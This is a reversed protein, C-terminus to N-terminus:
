LYNAAVVAGVVAGVVAKIARKTRESNARQDEEARLRALEIERDLRAREARERAALVDDEERALHPHALRWRAHERQAELRVAEAEAEVRRSEVAALEDRRRSAARAEEEVLRRRHESERDMLEKAHKVREEAEWKKRTLLEDDVLAVHLPEAPTANAASSVHVEVAVPVTVGQAPADPPAPPASPPKDRTTMPRTPLTHELVARSRRVRADVSEFKEFAGGSREAGM